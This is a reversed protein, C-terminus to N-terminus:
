EEEENFYCTREYELWNGKVPKQLYKDPNCPIPQETGELEMRAKAVPCEM